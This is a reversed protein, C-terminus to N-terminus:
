SIHKFDIYGKEVDTAILEVRIRDGVDVGNHGRVLKGEVPLKCLRVWTGKHSAGTVIAEFQEGIRQRFLLAAASKKNQREVKKVVNERETCHQALETLQELSYAPPKRNFVSKLQRHTILDTYRRNPATSHTYDEVALGFHDPNPDDPPEAKYEGAGMLKIVSLSLDPFREPDVQRQQTLFEELARSDPEDPLRHDYQRAIEVIRDWRQPREVVRRISPYDSDALFRATVSNAAIMFDQIMEKSVNKREIKLGRVRKGEFVPRAEITEFSLAGRQQRKHQLRQGAQVQLMLNEQMGKVAAIADPIAGEEDLWAAVSNYALRAHNRVLSQYLESEEIVGEPTLVFEAVIALRDEHANLSTFDTSLQEPLMSFVRAPTYVTTTNHQAHEDMASGPEVLADVDAIAVLVKIRDDPLAEAVTLQDLDLSDDNDISSWLLERQDRIHKSEGQAPGPIEEVESRVQESFEPWLGRDIMAQRALNELIARHEGNDMFVDGRLSLNEVNIICPFLLAIDKDDLTSPFIAQDHCGLKAVVNTIL